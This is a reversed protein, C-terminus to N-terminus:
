PQAQLKRKARDAVSWTLLLLVESLRVGDWNSWFWQLGWFVFSAIGSLMLAIAALGFVISVVTSM